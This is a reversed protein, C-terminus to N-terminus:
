IGAEALAKQASSIARRRQKATPAPPSPEGNAKATTAAIFRAIAEATTFRRGGVAVTGLKEGRVGNQIWRWITSVNPRGPILRAAQTISIPQEHDLDIM